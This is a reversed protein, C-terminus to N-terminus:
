VTENHKEWYALTQHLIRKEKKSLPRDKGTHYYGDHAHYKGHPENPRYDIDITKTRKGQKDYFSIYKVRSDEDVTAYVRNKTKTELPANAGKKNRKVFKVNNGKILVTSYERGYDSSSSAGNGGM